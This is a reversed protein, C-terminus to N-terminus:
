SCNVCIREKKGADRCCSPCITAKCSRCQYKKELLKFDKNCTACTNPDRPSPSSKQQTEMMNSKKWLEDKERLLEVVRDKMNKITDNKEELDAKYNKENEKLERETKEVANKLETCQGESHSLKTKVSQLEEEKRQLLKGKSMNEETLKAFNEKAAKQQAAFEETEKTLKEKMEMREQQLNNEMKQVQGQSEHLKRQLQQNEERLTSVLLAATQLQQNENQLAKLEQLVKLCEENQRKQQATIDAYKKELNEKESLRKQLQTKLEVVEAIHKDTTQQAACYEMELRKMEYRMKLNEEDMVFSKNELDKKQQALFDREKELAAVCKTLKGLEEQHSQKLHEAEKKVKNLQLSKEELADSAIKLETEASCKRDSLEQLLAKLTSGEEQINDRSIVVEKLQKELVSLQTKMDRLCEEQHRTLESMQNEMNTKESQLTEIQSMAKGLSIEMESKITQMESLRKTTQVLHEKQCRVENKKENIITEGLEVANKLSVIQEVYASAQKSLTEAELKSDKLLQQHSTLSQLLETKEKEINDKEVQYAKLKQSLKMNQVEVETLKEGSLKIEDLLKHYKEDLTLEDRNGQGLILSESNQLQRIETQLSFRSLELEEITKQSKHFTDQLTMNESQLQEYKRQHLEAEIMIEKKERGLQKVQGELEIRHKELSSIRVETNQLKNKVDDLLQEKSLLSEAEKALQDELNKKQSAHNNLDRMHIQKMKELEVLHNKTLTAIADSNQKQLLLIDQQKASLEEKLSNVLSDLEETTESLLKNSEELQATRKCEDESQQKYSERIKEVELQVQNDKEFLVKDQKEKKAILEQLKEEKKEIEQKLNKIQSQQKSSQKRLELERKESSALNSLLEHIKQLDKSTDPVRQQQSVDKQIMNVKSLLEQNQKELSSMKLEYDVSVAKLNRTLYDDASNETMAPQNSIHLGESTSAFPTTKQYNFSECVIEDEMQPCDDQSTSKSNNNTGNLMKSIVKTPRTALPWGVDLNTGRMDLDFQIGNLEYLHSIIASRLEDKLFPSRAYYWESTLQTNMFCLQLTDALCNHVLCYQMFRRGKGLSTKLESVAQEMQQFDKAAKKKMSVSIFDWYDKRTGFFSKKEKQDFQLLYELKACLLIM